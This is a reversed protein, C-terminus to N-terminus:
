EEGLLEEELLDYISELEASNLGFRNEIEELKKEQKELVYKAKNVFDSEKVKELFNLLDKNEDVFGKLVSAFFWNRRYGKEELRILFEAYQYDNKIAFCVHKNLKGYKILSYDTV